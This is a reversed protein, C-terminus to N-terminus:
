ARLHDRLVKAVRAMLVEAEPQVAAPVRSETLAAVAYTQGDAHSVVGVEHRLNLLTGTKSSWRTADSSFDPSLRQRLLNEGMLERVRAAVESDITSPCWLAGLLDVYARASGSSARTVDLQPIVHGRGETAAGIALSHALHVQARDFREAPTESLEGATHRVAIGAVGWERLRATVQAAPTLTFLADSASEDSIAVSLYLLDDIAARAPHRFKTLGTPGPVTSRGPQVEIQTAGDLEGRRIRDLTVAALPVKALSASPFELDPDIGIERGTTLDRVLFSGRLGGDDLEARLRRILTESHM